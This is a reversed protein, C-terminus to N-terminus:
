IEDHPKNLLREAVDFDENRIRRIYANFIEENGVTQNVRSMITQYEVGTVPEKNLLREVIELERTFIKQKKSDFEDFHQTVFTKIFILKFRTKDKINIIKYEANNKM